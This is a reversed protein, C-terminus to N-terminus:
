KKEEKLYDSIWLILPLSIMVFIFGTFSGTVKEERYINGFSLILGYLMFLIAALRLLLLARPPKRFLQSAFGLLGLLLIIQLTLFLEANDILMSKNRMYGFQYVEYTHLILDILLFLYFLYIKYLTKM